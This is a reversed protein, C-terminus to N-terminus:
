SAPDLQNLNTQVWQLWNSYLVDISKGFVREVATHFSTGASLQGVMAKMAEAGYTRGLFDVLLFSQRYALPQNDLQDFRHDLDELTYLQQRLTSDEEIWLYGSIEYEILQALGETFWRPYNGNTMYDLVYHTLEHAIPNIRDFVQRKATEEREGIWVNPSLLRITGSWYVGMASEGNGWGFASRLEDRTPYIIVPVKKAPTFGVQETVPGFAADATQVVWDVINQDSNTYYVVVHEGNRMQYGNLGALSRTRGRERYLSYVAERPRPWWWLLLAAMLLLPLVVMAWRGANTHTNNMQEGMPM